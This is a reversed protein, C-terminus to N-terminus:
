GCRCSRRQGLRPLGQSKNHSPPPRRPFKSSALGRRSHPFAAGSRPRPGSNNDNCRAGTIRRLAESQAWLAQVPACMALPRPDRRPLEMRAKQPIACLPSATPGLRRPLVTRDRSVLQPEQPPVGNEMQPFHRNGITRLQASFFSLERKTLYRHSGNLGLFSLLEKQTCAFPTKDSFPYEASLEDGWIPFSPLPREKPINQILHNWHDVCAVQDDTLRVELADDPTLEHKAQILPALNTKRRRHRPPFPDEPLDGFSAVMFFRERTHPYGLHHPSVLGHGKSKVHQTARIQYGLQALSERVVHWTQGSDHLEFNGVNELIVFSPQHKALITVIEHFLTGRTKDQLGSQTGSKSFPQCPFGACLIDHSPVKDQCARIDGHVLPVNPYNQKYLKRLEADSESAFVCDHGLDSLAEHFGGLGAFLDIFRVNNLPIHRPRQSSRLSPPWPVPVRSVIAHPYVRPPISHGTETPTQIVMTYPFVAPNVLEPPPPCGSVRAQVNIEAPIDM